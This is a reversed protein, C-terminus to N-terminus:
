DDHDGAVVLDHLIQILSLDTYLTLCSGWVAHSQATLSGAGLCALANRQRLSVALHAIAAATVSPDAAVVEDGCLLAVLAPDLHDDHAFLQTISGLRSICFLEWEPAKRM